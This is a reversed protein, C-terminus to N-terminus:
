SWRPSRGATSPAARLVAHPGAPGCAPPWSAAFSGRGQVYLSKYITEHSVRMEPEDPFARELRRAIQRPSWLRELDEVVQACLRSNAGLKTVKPRRARGCAERHARMPAYGHRGGHAAVERSITSPAREMEAAIARFSWGAELKVRIEVREDLSLRAPSPSWMEPRIVGGLPALVKFVTSLAVDVQVRIEEGSLGRAALRIIQHRVSVPLM